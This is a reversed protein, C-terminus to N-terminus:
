VFWRSYRAERCKAARKDALGRMPRDQLGLLMEAIEDPCRYRWRGPAVGAMRRGKGNLSALM